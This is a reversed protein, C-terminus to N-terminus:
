RNPTEMALMMLVLTVLAAFSKSPGSSVQGQSAYMASIEPTVVSRKAKRQTEDRVVMNYAQSLNPSPQMQLVQSRVTLFDENLGMLFKRIRTKMKRAASCTASKCQQGLDCTEDEILDDKSGWLNKLKGYYGAVILKGLM